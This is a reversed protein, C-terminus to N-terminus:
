VLYNTSFMHQLWDRLFLVSLKVEFVGDRIYYLKGMKTICKYM